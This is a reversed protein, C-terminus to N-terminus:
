FRSKVLRLAQEIVGEIDLESTDLLVAEAAQILPTAARERDRRDREELEAATEDLSVDRGREREELWRRRVRVQPIADVFLKVEANPFVKTGIDRGEMVIGGDRSMERLNNVVAERVAPVTAVISSTRSVEPSRIEDTVDKGDVFVRLKDPDGELRIDANRALIAVESHNNLPIGSTLAKWAIARYLAGSDIYQYGLRRALAKALTSKGVGSPGDIAVILKSKQNDTGSPDCQHDQNASIEEARDARDGPEM